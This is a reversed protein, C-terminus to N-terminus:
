SYSGGDAGHDRGPDRWERIKVRCALPARFAINTLAKNSAQQNWTTLIYGEWQGVPLRDVDDADYSAITVTGDGLCVSCTDETMIEVYFTDQHFTHREPTDRATRHTTETPPYPPRNPATM